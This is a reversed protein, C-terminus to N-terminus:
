LTVCLLVVPVLLVSSLLVVPELLVVSILVASHLEQSELMWSLPARRVGAARRQAARCTQAIVGAGVGSVVKM